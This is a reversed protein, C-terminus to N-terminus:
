CKFRRYYRKIGRSKKKFYRTTIYPQTNTQGAKELAKISRELNGIENTTDRLEKKLTDNSEAYAKSAIAAANIEKTLDKFEQSSKDLTDLKKQAEAMSKDLETFGKASLSLDQILKDFGQSKLDAIISEDAM